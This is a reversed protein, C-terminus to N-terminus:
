AMVSHIFRFLLLDPDSHRHCPNIQTQLIFPGDQPKALVDNFLNWIWHQLPNVYSSAVLLKNYGM